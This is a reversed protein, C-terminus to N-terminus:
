RHINNEEHSIDELYPFLVSLSLFFSLSFILPFSSSSSFLITKSVFCFRSIHDHNLEKFLAMFSRVSSRVEDSRKEENEQNKWDRERRIRRIRSWWVEEGWERSKKLRKRKKNKKNKKRRGKKHGTFIKKHSFSDHSFFSRHFSSACRLFYISVSVREIKRGVEREWNRERGGERSPFFNLSLHFFILFSTGEHTLLM